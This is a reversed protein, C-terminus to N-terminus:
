GDLQVIMILPSIEATAFSSYKKKALRCLDAGVESVVWGERPVCFYAAM